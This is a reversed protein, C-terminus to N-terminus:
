RVYKDGRKIEQVFKTIREKETRFRTFRVLFYDDSHRAISKLYPDRRIGVIIQASSDDSIEAIEVETDTFLKSYVDRSIQSIGIKRLIIPLISIEVGGSYMSLERKLAEYDTEFRTNDEKNQM